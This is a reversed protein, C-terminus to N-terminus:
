SAGCETLDGFLLYMLGCAIVALLMGTIYIPSLLVDRFNM